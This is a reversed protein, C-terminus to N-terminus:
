ALATGGTERLAIIQNQQTFSSAGTVDRQGNGRRFQRRRCIKGPRKRMMLWSRTFSGACLLSHMM